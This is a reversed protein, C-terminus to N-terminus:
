KERNKERDPVDFTHRYKYGCRRHFTHKYNVTEGERNEFVMFWRWM